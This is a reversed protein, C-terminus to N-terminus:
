GGLGAVDNEHVVAAAVARLGDLCQLFGKGLQLLLAVAEDRYALKQLVVRGRIRAHALLSGHSLLDAHDRAGRVVPLACFAILIAFGFRGDPFVELHGSKENLGSGAPSLMRPHELPHVPRHPSRM